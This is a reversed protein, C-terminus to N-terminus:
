GKVSEPDNRYRIVQFGLPNILRDEVSMSSNVYVFTVTAAWHSLAPREGKRQAKKTYRVLCTVRREEGVIEGPNILSVAKVRTKVEVSQGYVAVPANENRDPDTYEAYAQQVGSDSMLGVIRRDYERTEWQYGERHRIYQGIWYKDLVEQGEEQVEGDTETLTSIVDVVGTNNDVRIVFPAVSKLPALSALAIGELVVLLILVASIRWARKESRKTKLINDSDWSRAENFYQKELAKKRQKEKM